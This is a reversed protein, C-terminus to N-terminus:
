PSPACFGTASNGSVNFDKCIDTDSFLVYDLGSAAGALIPVQVEVRRYVGGARATVDIVATQSPMAVVTGGQTFVMKYRTSAYRPRLRLIYSSSTNFGELTISCNYGASDVLTVNASSCLAENTKFNINHSGLTDAPKIVTSKIEVGNPCGPCAPSINAPDYQLATIEMVAPYKWSARSTYFPPSTYTAGVIDPDSGFQHWNLTLKNFGTVPGMQNSQDASLQGSMHNVTTRVTQCTYLLDPQASSIQTPSGCSTKPVVTYPATTLETKIKLLADEVGAEAAFYAKVSQDANSAQKLEGVSLSVASTTVVTLLLSILMAALLSVVGKEDSRINNYLRILKM